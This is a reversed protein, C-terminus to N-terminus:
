DLQFFGSANATTAARLTDVDLQMHAATAAAIHPLYCPENRRKDRPPSALDRPLLYPADTELMLRALPIAKVAERLDGGRREDCIWGTIGIYMGLELNQEVERAGETFCHAVANPLAPLYDRLIALFDEHAQRQHLFVPRQCEVAIRLQAEFAHRQAQPTAFNRHYDLGCEGIAVVGTCEALRRIEAATAADFHDAHHPHMGATAYIMGPYAVCLRQAQQSHAIDTGTVIMRQVGVARARAMVEALDHQFASATLNVGIDILDHM